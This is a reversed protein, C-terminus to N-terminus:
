ESIAIPTKNQLNYMKGIIDFHGRCRPEYRCDKDAHRILADKYNPPRWFGKENKVLRQPIIGQQTCGIVACEVFLRILRHKCCLGILELTSSFPEGRFNLELGSTLVDYGNCLLFDVLNFIRGRMFFQVEDFVIVDAHTERIKEIIKQLEGIDLHHKIPFIKLSDGISMEMFHRNKGRFVDPRFILIKNEQFRRRDIIKALEQKRQTGVNGTIITLRGQKAM